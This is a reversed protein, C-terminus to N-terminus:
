GNLYHWIKADPHQADEDKLWNVAMQVLRTNRDQETMEPFWSELLRWNDSAVMNLTVAFDWFNYDRIDQKVSDYVVEMTSVAWYPARHKSGSKDTYYMRAIDEMAFAEDYHGGSMEGYIERVLEKRDAEPMSEEVADSIVQVTKWMMGEGKGTGYKKTIDYLTM